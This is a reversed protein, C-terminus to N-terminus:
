QISTQGFYDLLYVYDIANVKGDLNIDSRPNIHVPKGYDTLLITLDAQDVKGDLNIDAQLPICNIYPTACSDLRQCSNSFSYCQGTKNICNGAGIVCSPNVTPTPVATVAISATPTPVATVAISATPTPVFITVIPVPTATAVPLTPSPSLISITTCNAGLTNNGDDCDPFSNTACSAPCGTAPKASGLGWFCYSDADRDTCARTLTDNQATPVDSYVLVPNPNQVILFLGALGEIGFDLGGTNKYSNYVIDLDLTSGPTSGLM